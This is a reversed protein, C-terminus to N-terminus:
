ADPEEEIGIARLGELAASVCEDRNLGEYAIRLLAAEADALLEEYGKLLARTQPALDTM